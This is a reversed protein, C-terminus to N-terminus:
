DISITITSHVPLISLTLLINYGFETNSRNTNNTQKNRRYKVLSRLQCLDIKRLARLSTNSHKKRTHKKPPAKKTKKQKM